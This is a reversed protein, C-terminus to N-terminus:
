GHLDLIKQVDGVSSSLEIGGFVRLKELSRAEDRALVSSLLSHWGCEDFQSRHHLTQRTYIFWQEKLVVGGRADVIM